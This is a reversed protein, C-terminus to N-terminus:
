GEERTKKEKKKKKAFVKGWNKVTWPYGIRNDPALLEGEREWLGGTGEAGEARICRSYYGEKQRYM